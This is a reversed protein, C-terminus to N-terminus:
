VLKKKKLIEKAAKRVKEDSQASKLLDQLNKDSTINSLKNILRPLAPFNILVYETIVPAYYYTGNGDEKNLAGFPKLWILNLRNRFEEKSVDYAKAKDGNDPINLMKMARETNEIIIGLDDKKVANYIERSDGYVKINVTTGTRENILVSVLEALLNENVSDLVGINLGKGVCAHSPGTSLLFTILLGLIIKKM